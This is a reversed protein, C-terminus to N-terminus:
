GGLILPVFVVALIAVAVVGLVVLARNIRRRSVTGAAFSSRSVQDLNPMLAQYPPDKQSAPQGDRGASDDEDRM